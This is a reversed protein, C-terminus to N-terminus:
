SYTVSVIVNDPIDRLVSIVGTVSSATRNYKTIKIRKTTVWEPDLTPADIKTM